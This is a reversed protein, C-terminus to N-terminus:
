RGISSLVIERMSEGLRTTRYRPRAEPFSVSPVSEIEVAGCSALRVAIAADTSSLNIHGNKLLPLDDLFCRDVVMCLERFTKYDIRGTVYARFAKAVLKPKELDDLRELLIFLQKGVKEKFGDETELRDAFMRRESEPIDHLANLFRLLKAAFIRNSYHSRLEGTIALWKIVPIDKLLGDPLQADLIAEAADSAIERSGPDAIAETIVDYIKGLKMM